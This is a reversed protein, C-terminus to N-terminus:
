KQLVHGEVDDDGDDGDPEQNAGKHLVHAEVDDGGESDPEQNAGKHLVHAEVEEPETGPEENEGLRDREDSM